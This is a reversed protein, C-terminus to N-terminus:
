MESLNELSYIGTYIIQNNKYFDIRIQDGARSFYVHENTLGNYLIKGNEIDYIVFSYEDNLRQRPNVKEIVCDAFSALCHRHLFLQSTPPM